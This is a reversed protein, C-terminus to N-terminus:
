QAAAIKANIEDSVTKWATPPLHSGVITDVALGNQAIVSALEGEGQAAFNVEGGPSYLDSVWLIRRNPLYAVVIRRGYDAGAVDVPYLEVRNPGDGIAVKAAVPRFMLHRGSTSLSDPHSVHRASTVARLIAENRANAYVPIGRAVYERVGGFHAWMFDTVVLSQVPVGPYRRSVEQLVVASYATAYPSDIVVIGSPQRVLMTAWRGVVWTVGDALEIPQGRGNGLVMPTVAVFKARVSDPIAFSDAPAAPHLDVRFISVRNIPMGNRETTWTRPYHIGGSERSWSSYWTRTHVDGWQTWDPDNDDEGFTDVLTPLHTVVSLYVRTTGGQSSVVHQAVGQIVTDAEAKLDPADLLSVLLREVGQRLRERAARVYFDPAAFLAGSNRSSFGIAGVSDPMVFTVGLPDNNSAAAQQYTRRERLAGVDRLDDFANLLMRPHDVDPSYGLGYSEEIGHLRVVTLGRMAAEGGSAALADRVWQRADPQPAMAAIALAAILVTIMGARHRV